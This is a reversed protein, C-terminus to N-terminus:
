PRGVSRRRQVKDAAILRLLESKERRMIDGINRTKRKKITLMLKQKRMRSLADGDTIKHVWLISPIRGYIYM